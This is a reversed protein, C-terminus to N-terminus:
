MMENRYIRYILYNRNYPVNLFGEFIRCGSALLSVQENTQKESNRLCGLISHFLMAEGFLNIVHIYVVLTEDRTHTHQAIWGNENLLDLQVMWRVYRRTDFYNNSSASRIWLRHTKKEREREMNKESQRDTYREREIELNFLSFRKGKVIFNYLFFKKSPRRTISSSRNGNSNSLIQCCFYNQNTHTHTRRPSCFRTSLSATQNGNRLHIDNHSSMIIGIILELNCQPVYWELSQSNEREREKKRQTEQACEASRIERASQERKSAGKRRARRPNKQKEEKEM